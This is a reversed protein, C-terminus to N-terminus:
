TNKKTYLIVEGGCESCKAETNEFHVPPLTKNEEGCFPCLFRHVTYISAYSKNIDFDKTIV